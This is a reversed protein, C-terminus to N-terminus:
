VENQKMYTRRIHYDELEVKIEEDEFLYVVDGNIPKKIPQVESIGAQNTLYNIIKWKERQSAGVIKDCEELWWEQEAKKVAEVVEKRLRVYEAVNVRSRRLRCRKRAQRLRKL